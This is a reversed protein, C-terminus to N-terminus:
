LKDVLTYNGADDFYPSSHLGAANALHTLIPRLAKAAENYNAPMGEFMIQGFDLHNRDLDGCPLDQPIAGRPVFDQLLKVGAVNILSLCVAFPPPVSFSGLTRAHVLAYKIISAQVEPLVIVKYDQGHALSSAVAEIVGTRFVSV